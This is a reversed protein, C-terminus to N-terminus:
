QARLREGIEQMSCHNATACRSGHTNGQEWCTDSCGQDTEKCDTNPPTGPPCSIPVFPCADICGQLNFKDRCQIYGDFNCQSVTPAAAPQKPNTVAPLSSTDILDDISDPWDGMYPKQREDYAATDEWLDKLWKVIDLLKEALEKKNEIDSEQDILKKVDEIIATSQEELIASEGLGNGGLQPIVREDFVGSQATKHIWNTKALRDRLLEARWFPDPEQRMKEDIADLLQEAVGPGKWVPVDIIEDLIQQALGPKRGTPLDIYKRITYLETGFAQSLRDMVDRYSVEREDWTGNWAEGIYDYAKNTWEQLLSFKQYPDKTQEIRARYDQTLNRAYESLAQSKFYADGGPRPLDSHNFGYRDIGEKEWQVAKNVLERYKQATDHYRVQNAAEQKLQSAQEMHRQYFEKATEVPTSDAASVSFSLPLCFIFLFAILLRKLIAM